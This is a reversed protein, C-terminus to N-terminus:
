AKKILKTIRRLHRLPSHPVRTPRRKVLHTAIQQHNDILQDTGSTLRCDAEAQVSDALATFSVLLDSSSPINDDDKVPHSDIAPEKVENLEMTEDITPTPEEPKFIYFTEVYKIIENAEIRRRHVILPESVPVNIVITNLSAMAAKSLGELREEKIEREDM